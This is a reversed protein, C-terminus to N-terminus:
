MQMPGFVRRTTICMIVLINSLLLLLHLSLLLINLIIFSYHTNWVEIALLSEVSEMRSLHHQLAETLVQLQQSFLSQM